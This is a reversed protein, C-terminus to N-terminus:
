GRLVAKAQTTDGGKEVLREIRATQRSVLLNIEILNKGLQAIEQYPEFMAGMFSRIARTGWLRPASCEKSLFGTAAPIDGPAISAGTTNLKRPSPDAASAGSGGARMMLCSLRDM